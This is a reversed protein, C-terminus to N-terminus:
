HILWIPYPMLTRGCDRGLRYKQGSDHVRAYFLVYGSDFAPWCPRRPEAMKQDFDVWIESVKHKLFTCLGDDSEDDGSVYTPDVGATRRDYDDNSSGNSADGDGDSDDSDDSFNRLAMHSLFYYDYKLSLSTLIIQRSVFQQNIM